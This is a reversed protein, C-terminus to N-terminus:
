LRTWTYRGDPCERFYGGSGAKIALTARYENGVTRDLEANAETREYWFYAVIGVFALALLICVTIALGSM